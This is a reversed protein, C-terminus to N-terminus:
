EEVVPSDDGLDPPPSGHEGALDRRRLESLIDKCMGPDNKLAELMAPKGRYDKGGYSYTVNNPHAIINWGVGLSFVEEHTDVIGKRYNFSFEGAREKPGLSSDVMKVRIRHGMKEGKGALDTVSEDIYDNGLLDVRGDKNRNPEVFMQYECHHAAGFSIAARIKNGRKIELDDQQARIHSTLILAFGLKRQVPLIWKLGSQITLADDGRQQTMITDANLDRRGRIQTLSDIIVLKLNMGDDQVLSTLNKEIGDFIDEPSNTEFAVYRNADIGWLKATAEDLQGGERYETNFKVVWATPDDQHIQGTMANCIVSKGGKPPGFLSLTYGAPLGHTNGFCFNLSPSPSRVVYDHINKFGQVAGNLKLLKEMIKKNNPAMNEKTNSM